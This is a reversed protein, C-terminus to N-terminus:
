LDDIHSSVGLVAQHGVVMEGPHVLHDRVRASPLLEDFGELGSFALSLFRPGCKEDDGSMQLSPMWQMVLGVSARRDQLHCVATM